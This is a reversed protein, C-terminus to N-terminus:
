SDASVHKKGEEKQRRPQIEIVPFISSKQRENERFGMVQGILGGPKPIPCERKRQLNPESRKMSRDDAVEAEPESGRVDDDSELRQQLQPRMSM